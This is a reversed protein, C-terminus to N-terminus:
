FTDPFNIRSPTNEWSQSSTAIISAPNTIMTPRHPYRDSRVSACHASTSGIRIVQDKLVTVPLVLRLTTM